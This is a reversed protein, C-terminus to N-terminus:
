ATRKLDPSHAHDIYPEFLVVYVNQGVIKTHYATEWPHDVFDLLAKKINPWSGINHEKWRRKTQNFRVAEFKETRNGESIPSTPATTIHRYFPLRPQHM